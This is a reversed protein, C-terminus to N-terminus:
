RETEKHLDVCNIKGCIVIQDNTMSSIRLGSGCVSIECKNGSIIVKENSYCLLGHHYDILVRSDGIIEILSNGPMVVGPLKRKVAFSELHDQINSM